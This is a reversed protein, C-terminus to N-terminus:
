IEQIYVDLAAKPLQSRPLLVLPPPLRLAAIAFLAAAAAIAAGVDRM